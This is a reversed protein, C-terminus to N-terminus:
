HRGSLLRQVWENCSGDEVTKALADADATRGLGRLALVRLQRADLASWGLCAADGDAM